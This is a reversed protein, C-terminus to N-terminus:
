LIEQGETAAALFRVGSKAALLGTVRGARSLTWLVSVTLVSNNNPQKEYRQFMPCVFNTDGSVLNTVIVCFEPVHIAFPPPCLTITCPSVYPHEAKVSFCFSFSM